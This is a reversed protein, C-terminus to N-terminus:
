GGELRRNTTALRLLEPPVEDLTCSVRIRGDLIEANAVCPLLPAKPIRIAPLSVPGANVRIVNDQVSVKASAQLPGARVGIKGNSLQVPVNLADSLEEQTIEATATGKGIGTLEVRRQRLLADRDIHVDQLDVTVRALSLPGADVDTASAHLESLEGSVLLRALFPFSDIEVSASTASPVDKRLNAQLQDEVAARAAFDAVVLMGVILLLVVLLLKRM